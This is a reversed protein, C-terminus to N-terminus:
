VPNTVFKKHKIQEKTGRAIEKTLLKLLLSHSNWDM